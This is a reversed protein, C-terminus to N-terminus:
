TGNTGNSEVSGSDSFHNAASKAETDAEHLTELMGTPEVIMLSLELAVPHQVIPVARRIEGKLVRQVLAVLAESLFPKPLAAIVNEFREATATMEAIHGSMMVVPIHATKENDLLRHCVEDGTIDPLSYDLLVLDPLVDAIKEVGTIGDPATTIQFQPDAYLLADEVFVLLMDTDDIVVIKRGTKAQPKAPEVTAAPASANARRVATLFIETWDEHITRDSPSRKQVERVTPETWGFMEALADGDRRNGAVAHAIQGGAIHIEGSEGNKGKVPLVVDRGGACYALAVDALGLSILNGRSSGADLSSGPGLLAHVAAGFSSTEFPNALFYLVGLSRFEVAVETPVKARIVLVRTGPCFDRMRYLFETLGNQPQEFDIILLAPRTEVALKEAEAFNAAVHVSHDPAFKELASSLAAALGDYEELLLISKIPTSRTDPKLEAIM